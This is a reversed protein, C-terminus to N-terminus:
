SEGAESKTISAAATDTLDVVLREDRELKPHTSAVKCGLKRAANLPTGPPCPPRDNGGGGEVPVDDDKAAACECHMVGDGMAETKFKCGPPMQGVEMGCVRTHGLVVQSAKLVNKVSKKIKHCMSRQGQVNHDNNDDQGYWLGRYWVVSDKYTKAAMFYDKDLSNIADVVDQGGKKITEMNGGSDKVQTVLTSLSFGGHTFIVAGGSGKCM